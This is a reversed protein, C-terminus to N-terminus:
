IEIYNQLIDLSVKGMDYTMVWRNETRSMQSDTKLSYEKFLAELKAPRVGDRLLVIIKEKLFQEGSEASKQTNKCGTSLIFLFSLSTGILLLWYKM